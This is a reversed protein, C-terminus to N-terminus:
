LPVARPRQVVQTGAGLDHLTQRRRTALVTAKDAWPFLTALLGLGGVLPVLAIVAGVSSITSLLVRRLVVSWPLRERSGVTRVVLRFLLKGPTAGRARLFLAHYGVVTLYTAAVAPAFPAGGTALSASGDIADVAFRVVGVVVRVVAAIASVLVLDVGWAAARVSVPALVEGDATAEDRQVPNRTLQDWMSFAAADLAALTDRWSGRGGGTVDFVPARPPVASTSPVPTPPAPAVPPPPAPRERTHATWSVGNWWREAGPVSPRQPDAYWGEPTSVRPDHWTWSPLPLRVPHGM